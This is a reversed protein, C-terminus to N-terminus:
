RATATPPEVPAPQSRVEKALRAALQRSIGFARGIDGISMGEELGAATISIRLRHRCEDFESLLETMRVRREASNMDALARGLPTDIELLQLGETFGRRSEVLQDQLEQGTAMLRHIDAVVADRAASM